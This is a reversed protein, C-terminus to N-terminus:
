GTAIALLSTPMHVLWPAQRLWNLPFAVITLGGAMLGFVFEALARVLSLPAPKSFDAQDTWDWGNADDLYQSM